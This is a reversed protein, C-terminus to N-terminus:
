EYLYKHNIRYDNSCGNASVIININDLVTYKNISELCEKINGKGCTPIILTINKNM